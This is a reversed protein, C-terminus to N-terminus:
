EKGGDRGLLWAILGFGGFIGAICALAAKIGRKESREKYALYKDLCEPTMRALAEAETTQKESYFYNKSEVKEAEEAEDERDKYIYLAM